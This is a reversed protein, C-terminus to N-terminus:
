DLSIPILQSNQGPMNHSGILFCPCMCSMLSREDLRTKHWKAVTFGTMFFPIPTDSSIELWLLLQLLFTCGEGWMGAHSSFAVVVICERSEIQNRQINMLTFIRDTHQNPFSSYPEDSFLIFLCWHDPVSHVHFFFFSLWLFKHINDEVHALTISSNHQAPLKSCEGKRFWTM